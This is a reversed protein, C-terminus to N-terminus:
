AVEGFKVIFEQKSAANLDYGIVEHGLDWAAAITVGSGAFPVLIREGPFAFTTIIDRMLEYPRETPHIKKGSSVMPFPFVNAHGEKFIRANGRKAYLFTEAVTALRLQPLRTQGTSNTKYWIAPVPEVEWGNSRLTSFVLEYWPFSLWFVIHADKSAAFTCQEITDKIFKPYAGSPIDHYGQLDNGEHRDKSNQLDLAYPPDVEIFSYCEKNISETFFDGVVYCDALPSLFIEPQATRVKIAHELRKITHLAESANKKEGLSLEPFKRHVKAIKLNDNVTQQSIGLLRATDRTSHGQSFRGPSKPGHISQLTEHVMSTMTAVEIHTLDKRKLNEYLEILKMEKDSLEGDYVRVSVLTAGLLELAKYRRGGALLEYPPELNTSYVTLPNILGQEKISKALEDIDGYEIRGRKSEEFIIDSMEVFKITGLDM